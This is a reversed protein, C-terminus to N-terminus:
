LAQLISKYQDILEKKYEAIITQAHTDFDPVNAKLYEELKSGDPDNETLKELEDKQGESLMEFLKRVIRMQIVSLFSDLFKNRAEQSMLHLNLEEFLNANLYKQVNLPLANM